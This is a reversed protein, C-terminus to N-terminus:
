RVFEVAAGRTLTRVTKWASGRINQLGKARKGHCEPLLGFGGGCDHMLPMIVTRTFVGNNLLHLADWAAKLKVPGDPRRFDVGFMLGKGRVQSFFPRSKGMEALRAAAKAGLRAANGAVDLEAMVLLTALAAAMARDNQGFTNLLVAASECDAVNFGGSV